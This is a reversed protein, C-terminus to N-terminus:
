SRAANLIDTRDRLERSQETDVEIVRVANAEFKGALGFVALRGRHYGADGLCFCFRASLEFSQRADRRLPNFHAERRQWPSLLSKEAIATAAPQLSAM